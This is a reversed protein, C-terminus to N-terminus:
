KTRVGKNNYSASYKQLDKVLNRNLILRKICATQSSKRVGDKYEAEIRKLLAPHEVLTRLIDRNCAELLTPPEPAASLDLTFCNM